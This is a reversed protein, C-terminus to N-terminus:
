HMSAFFSVCFFNVFYFFQCCVKEFMMRNDGEARAQEEMRLMMTRRQYLMDSTRPPLPELFMPTHYTPLRGGGRGSQGSKL